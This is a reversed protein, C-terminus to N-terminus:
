VQLLGIVLSLSGNKLMFQIRNILDTSLFGSWIIWIPLAYCLRSIMIAHSIQSLQFSPDYKRFFKIHIDGYVLLSITECACHVPAKDQHQFDALQQLFKRVFTKQSGTYIYSSLSVGSTKLANEGNDHRSESM